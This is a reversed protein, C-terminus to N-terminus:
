TERRIEVECTDLRSKLLEHEQRLLVHQQRLQDYGRECEQHKLTSVALEGKVHSLEEKTRLHAAKAEDAHRELVDMRTNLTDELRIYLRQWSSEERERRKVDAAHQKDKRKLRADHDADDEERDASRWKRYLLLVAGGITFIAGAIIATWGENSIGETFVM